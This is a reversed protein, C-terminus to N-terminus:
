HDRRKSTFSADQEAQQALRDWGEALDLYARRAPGFTLHVAESRLKNARERFQEALRHFDRDM